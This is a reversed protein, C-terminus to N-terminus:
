SRNPIATQCAPDSRTKLGQSWGHRVLVVVRPCLWQTVCLDHSRELIVPLASRTNPDARLINGTAREAIYVSAGSPGFGFGAIPTRTVHWLRPSRRGVEATSTGMSTDASINQYTSGVQGTFSATDTNGRGTLETATQTTKNKIFFYWGASGGIIVVLLAALIFQIINNRM